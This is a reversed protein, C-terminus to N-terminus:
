NCCIRATRLRSIKSISCSSMMPRRTTSGPSSIPTKHFRSAIVPSNSAYWYLVLRAFNRTLGMMRLVTEVAFAQESLTFGTRTIREMRAFSAGYNIDHHRRLDEVFRSEEEPTLATARAEPSPEGVGKEDLARRRLFELRALSLNPNRDGFKEQLLRRTVARQEAALMEEVEERSLKDVTLTTAIAPVLKRRLWDAAKRYWEPCLTKGVFPVSYFWGLSEVMV